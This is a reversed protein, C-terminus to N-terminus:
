AGAIEAFIDEAAAEIEIQGRVGARAGVLAAFFRRQHFREFALAAIRADPRGKRGHHAQVSRGGHDVVDLRKGRDRFNQAAAAFPIRAQARRFVAARAQEADRAVDVPGPM